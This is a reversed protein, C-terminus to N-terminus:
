LTGAIFVLAVIGLGFCPIVINHMTWDPFVFILIGAVIAAFVWLSKNM